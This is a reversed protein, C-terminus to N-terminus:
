VSGHVNDIEVEVLSRQLVESRTVVFPHYLLVGLKALLVITQLGLRLFSPFLPVPTILPEYVCLSVQM